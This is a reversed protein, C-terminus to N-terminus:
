LLLKFFFCQHLLNSLIADFFFSTNVFFSGSSSFGDNATITPKSSNISLGRLIKVLYKELFNLNNFDTRNGTINLTILKLVVKGGVKIKFPVSLTM